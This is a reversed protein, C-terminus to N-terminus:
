DNKLIDTLKKHCNKEYKKLRATAEKEEHNQQIGISDTIVRIVYDRNILMKFLEKDLVPMEKIYREIFFDAKDSDTEMLSRTLDWSPHDYCADEFDIFYIKGSSDKQMNTPNLDGHNLIKPIKDFMELSHHNYFRLIQDIDSWFKSVMEKHKLVRIAFRTIYLNKFSDDKYFEVENELTLLKKQFNIIKDFSEEIGVNKLGHIFPYITVKDDSYVPMIIDTLDYKSIFEYVKKEKQSVPTNLKMFYQSNGDVIIAYSSNRTSLRFKKIELCSNDPLELKKRLDQEQQNM